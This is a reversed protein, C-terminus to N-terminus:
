SIDRLRVIRDGEFTFVSRGKLKLEDGKKLGNPFDMALVAYYDIEIETTSEDTHKLSLITQKRETFYTTAIQAQDKFATIGMVSLNVEGGSINDFVINDDMNRLMGAVDFRNYAEVYDRILQEREM